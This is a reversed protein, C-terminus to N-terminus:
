KQLIIKSSKVQNKDTAKLLYIGDPLYSLDLQRSIASLNLKESVVLQGAFDFVELLASPELGNITIIGTSPNPFVTLDNKDSNMNSIGLVGPNWKYMGGTGPNVQLSGSWGTNIDLFAPNYYGEGHAANIGSDIIAWTNGADTSYSSGAKGQFSPYESSIFMNTGPISNINLFMGAQKTFSTWTLGGDTTRSYVVNSLTNVMAIGTLGDSLFSVAAYGNVGINQVTWTLGYNCSKFIRGRSTAFWICSGKFDMCSNETYENPLASPINSPPVQIFTNGSDNSYFIEFKGGVPDGVVIGHNADWFYVREICSTASSYIIGSDVKAWTNGGDITKYLYSENWSLTISSAFAINADLAAISHILHNSPIPITGFTWTNGADTTKSFENSLGNYYGIGAVSWVVNADAISIIFPHADPASFGGNQETWSQADMATSLLTLSIALLTAQKKISSLLTTNM